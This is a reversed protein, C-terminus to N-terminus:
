TNITSVRGGGLLIYAKLLYPYKNVARNESGAKSGSM